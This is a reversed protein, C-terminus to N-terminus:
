ALINKLQDSTVKQGSVVYACLYKGGINDNKAVVVAEKIYDIDLLCREIEGTEIRFGRIKVQTDIRGLFEINGDTLWRALDGTQYIHSRHSM